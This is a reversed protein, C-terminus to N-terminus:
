AAARTAPAPANELVIITGDTPKDTGTMTSDWVVIMQHCRDCLYGVYTVSGEGVPWVWEYYTVPADGKDHGVETAATTFTVTEKYEFTDKQSLSAENETYTSTVEVTFTIEGTYRYSVGTECNNSATTKTWVADTLVPLEVVKEAGCTCEYTISGKQTDTPAKFTGEKVTWEHEVPTGVFYYDNCETCQYVAASEHDAVKVPADGPTHPGKVKVAVSAGCDECVFYGGSAIAEGCNAPANDFLTLGPTGVVYETTQTADIEEGNYHHPLRGINVNKFTYDESDTKDHFTIDYIGDQACTQEQVEVITLDAYTGEILKESDCTERKCVVTFSVETTDAADPDYVFSEGEKIVYNHGLPEGVEYTGLCVTCNYVAAKECTADSVKTGQTHAPKYYVAKSGGCCECVIYACQTAADGCSQPVNDLLHWNPSTTIADANTIPDDKTGAIQADTLEIKQGNAATVYHPQIPTTITVVYQEGEAEYTYKTYTAGMCPDENEYTVEPEGVLTANELVLKHDDAPNNACTFTITAKSPDDPNPVVTPESTYVHNEEDLTRDEDTWITVNGCDECDVDIHAPTTCDAPTVKLEGEYTHRGTVNVAISEGCHECIFYAGNNYTTQCDDGLINDIAVFDPYEDINYTKTASEGIEDVEIAVEEGLWNLTYHNGGPVTVTDSWTFAADGTYTVTTKSTLGAVSDIETVAGVAMTYTYTYITDEMCSPDNSTVTYAKGEGANTLALKPLTLTIETGCETCNGTLVGEAEDTPATTVSWEAVKHGRTELDESIYYAKCDDRTCMYIYRGGEECVNEGAASILRGEDWAHGLPDGVAVADIIDGCITCEQGGEYAPTTCTAPRDTIDVYNHRAEDRVIWTYGCDECVDLYVGNVVTNDKMSHEQLVWSDKNAHECEVTEATPLDFTKEEGNTLTIVIKGDVVEIEDIGVGAPGTEGTEGKPGEPGQDGKPGEPGQTGEGCAVLGFALALLCVLSCVVILLKKLISKSQM